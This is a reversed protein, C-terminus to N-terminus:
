KILEKIQEFSISLPLVRTSSNHVPAPTYYIAALEFYFINESKRSFTLVPMSTGVPLDNYKGLAQWFNIVASENDYIDPAAQLLYTNAWEHAYNTLLLPNLDVGKDAQLDYLVFNTYDSLLLYREGDTWCCYARAPRKGLVKEMLALTDYYQAAAEAQAKDELLWLGENGNLCVQGTLQIPWFALTTGLPRYSAARTMYNKGSQANVFYFYYDSISKDDLHYSSDVYVLYNGGATPEVHLVGYEHLNKKWPLQLTSLRQGNKCLEGSHLNLTYLDGREEDEYVTQAYALQVSGGDDSLWEWNLWWALAGLGMYMVDNRVFPKLGASSGWGYGNPYSFGFDTQDYDSSYPYIHLVSEDPMAVLLCVGGEDKSWRAELGFRALTERLPVYYKDGQQWANGIFEGELYVPVEAALAAGPLGLCLALLLFMTVSFKKM